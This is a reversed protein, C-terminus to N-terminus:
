IAGPAILGPRMAGDSIYGSPYDDRWRAHLGRSSPYSIVVMPRRSHADALSQSWAPSLFLLSKGFCRRVPWPVDAHLRAADAKVQERHQWLLHNMAMQPDREEGGDSEGTGEGFRTWTPQSATLKPGVTLQGVHKDADEAGQDRSQLRLACQSDLIEREAM